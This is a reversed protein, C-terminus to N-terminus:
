CLYIQYTFLLFSFSFCIKKIDAFLLILIHFISLFHPRTKYKSPQKRSKIFAHVIILNTGIIKFYVILYFRVGTLVKNEFKCPLGNLNHSFKTKNRVIFLMFNWCLLTFKDFLTSHIPQLLRGSSTDLYFPCPITEYIQTLNFTHLRLGYM